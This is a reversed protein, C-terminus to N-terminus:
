SIRRVQAPWFTQSVEVPRPNPSIIDWFMANIRPPVSGSALPMWTVEAKEFPEVKEKKMSSLYSRAVFITPSWLWSEIALSRM